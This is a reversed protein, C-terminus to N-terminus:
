RRAARRTPPSLLLKVIMVGIAILVLVVLEFERGSLVM